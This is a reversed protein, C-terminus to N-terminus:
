KAIEYVLIGLGAGGIAGVITWVYKSQVEKKLEQEKNTLDLKLQDKEKIIDHLRQDCDKQCKTLDNTCQELLNQSIIDCGKDLSEVLSNIRSIDKLRIAYSDYPISEDRFLFVTPVKLTGIELEIVKYDYGEVILMDAILLESNTLKVKDHNLFEENDNGFSNHPFSIGLILALSILINKM